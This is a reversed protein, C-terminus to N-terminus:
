IFDIHSSFLSCSPCHHFIFVIWVMYAMTLLRSKIRFEIPFGQFNLCPISLSLSTAWNHGARQLGMSQLRGPEETWPIKWALIRSHPAMAKELPDEWDLSQVWTERMTPLCKITQAVLSPCIWHPIAISTWPNSMDLDRALFTLRTAIHIHDLHPSASSVSLFSYQSTSNYTM